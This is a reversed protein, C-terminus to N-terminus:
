VVLIQHPTCIMFSRTIGKQKWEGTVEDRKPKFLKRLVRKKFVTFKYEVQVKLSLTECGHLAVNLIIAIYIKIM